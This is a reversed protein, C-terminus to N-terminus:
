ERTNFARAGYVYGVSFCVGPKQQQALCAEAAAELQDANAQKNSAGGLYAVSFGADFALAPTAVMAKGNGIAVRGDGNLVAAGIARPLGQYGAASGGLEVALRGYLEPLHRDHATRVLATVCGDAADPTFWAGGARSEAVSAPEQGLACSRRLNAILAPQYEDTLMKNLIEQRQAAVEAPSPPAAALLGRATASATLAILAALLAVGFNNV